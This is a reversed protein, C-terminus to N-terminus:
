SLSILKFISSKLLIIIFFNDLQCWQLVCVFPNYIIQTLDGRGFTCIAVIHTTYIEIFECCSTLLHRFALVANRELQADLSRRQAASRRDRSVFRCRSYSIAVSLVPIDGPCQSVSSMCAYPCRLRSSSEAVDPDCGLAVTHYTDFSFNILWDTLYGACIFCVIKLNLTFFTSLKHV